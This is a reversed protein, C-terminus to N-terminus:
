AFGDPEGEDGGELVERGLLARHQDQALDEPPLGALHRLQEVRGDRRHVAGQLAGAGRELGGFDVRELRQLEVILLLLQQRAVDVGELAVVDRRQDLQEV